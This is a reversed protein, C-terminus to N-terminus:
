APKRCLYVIESDRIAYRRRMAEDGLDAPRIETVEFARLRDPVDVPSYNRVHDFMEACPGGWEETAGLTMDLPIMLIVLGGPKMVRCLEAIGERDNTVHELVHLCIAIDMTNDPMPMRMIDTVLKMGIANDLHNPNIDIAIIRPNQMSDLFRTVQTEAAFHMVSANPVALLQRTSLVAHLMRHRDHSHCAPCEMNPLRLRGLDFTRFAYGRWGCCPCEVRPVKTMRNRGRVWLNIAFVSLSIWGSHPGYTRTRNWTVRLANFLIFPLNPRGSSM